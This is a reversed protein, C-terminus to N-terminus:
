GSVAKEEMIFGQCVARHYPAKREVCALPGPYRMLLVTPPTLIGGGFRGCHGPCSPASFPGADGDENNSM